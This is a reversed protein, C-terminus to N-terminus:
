ADQHGPPVGECTIARDARPFGKRPRVPCPRRFELPAALRTAGFGRDPGSSRRRAARHSADRTESSRRSRGATLPCRSALCGALLVSPGRIEVSSTKFTSAGLKTTVNRAWSCFGITTPCRVRRARDCTQHPREALALTARAPQSSSSNSPTRDSRWPGAAMRRSRRPRERASVEGGAIWRDKQPLHRIRWESRHFARSKGDASFTAHTPGTSSLIIENAPNAPFCVPWRAAIAHPRSSYAGAARLTTCKVARAKLLSWGSVARRRRSRAFTM